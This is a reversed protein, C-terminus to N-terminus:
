SATGNAPKVCDSIVLRTRRSAFGLVSCFCLKRLCSRLHATLPVTLAEAQAHVFASAACLGGPAPQRGFRLGVAHGARM